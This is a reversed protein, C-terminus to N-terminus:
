CGTTSGSRGPPSTLPGLTGTVTLLRDLAPSRDDLHLHIGAADTRRHLALLVSLGMPDCARVRACNLHLARLDPQAAMQRLALALLEDATTHDLDGTLHLHATYRDPTTVTPCREDPPYSTM